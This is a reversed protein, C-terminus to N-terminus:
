GAKKWTLKVKLGAEASTKAILAGAEGKFTLAFEIEAQDPRGPLDAFTAQVKEAVASITGMAGELAEASRAALGEVKDNKSLYVPGDEDDTFEILVLGKENMM